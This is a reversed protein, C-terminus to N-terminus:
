LWMGSYTQGRSCCAPIYLCIELCCKEMPHSTISSTEAPITHGPSFSPQPQPCRVHCSFILVPSLPELIRSSEKRSCVLAQTSPDLLFILDLWISDERNPCHLRAYQGGQAQCVIFEQTLGAMQVEISYCCCFGVIKPYDKRM